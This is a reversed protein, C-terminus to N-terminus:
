IIGYKILTNHDQEDITITTSANKQALTEDIEALRQKISFGLSWLDHQDMATLIPTTIETMHPTLSSERVAALRQRMTEIKKTLAADDFPSSGPNIFADLIKLFRQLGVQETVLDTIGVETNKHGIMQRLKTQVESLDQWRKLKALLDERAKAVRQIPELDIDVTIFTPYLGDHGRHSYGVPEVATLENKIQNTIRTARRLTLTTAPM